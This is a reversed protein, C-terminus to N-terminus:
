ESLIAQCINTAFISSFYNVLFVRIFMSECKYKNALLIDLITSYQEQKRKRMNLICRKELFALIYEGTIGSYPYCMSIGM